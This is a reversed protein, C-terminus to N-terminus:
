GKVNDFVNGVIASAATIVAIAIAVAIVKKKMAENDKNYAYAIACGCLCMVLIARVIKGTFIDQLGTVFGELGSLGLNGLSDAFLPTAAVSLLLFLVMKWNVNFKKM